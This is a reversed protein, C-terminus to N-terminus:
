GRHILLVDGQELNVGQLDLAGVIDEPTIVEGEKM